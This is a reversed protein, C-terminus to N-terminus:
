LLDALTKDTLKEADYSGLIVSFGFGSRSAYRKGDEDGAEGGVRVRLTQPTEEPGGRRTLELVAEPPEFGHGANDVPGAPASLYLSCLSRVWTDVKSADPATGARAAPSDVVWGDEAKRLEFAGRSNTLKVAEVEEAPVDLFKREIWSLADTRLEHSNLGRVEYVRDEDALRVHSINFNPSSGVYLDIADEDDGDRVRLRRQHEQEAVELARHYRGSSVVPRRVLLGELDELLTDVKSSDAPYGAPDELTWGDGERVLGVQKDEGESILLESPTIAALSPLLPRAAGGATEGRRLYLTGLVVVQVLLVLLLIRQTRNM